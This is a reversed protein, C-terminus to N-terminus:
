CLYFILIAVFVLILSAIFVFAYSKSPFFKFYHDHAGTSSPIISKSEVPLSHATSSSLFQKVEAEAKGFHDPYGQCVKLITRWTVDIDRRIWRQFVQILNNTTAEAYPLLDDVRVSLAIGILKFQAAYSDFLRVLDNLQPKMDLINEDSLQDNDQKIQTGSKGEDPGQADNFWTWYDNSLAPSEGCVTCDAVKHHDENVICYCSENNPCAFANIYNHKLHMADTSNDIATTLLKRVLPCHQTPGTFYVEVHTYHNILHLTHKSTITVKLSMADRFKYFEPASPPIETVCEKQNLLHVITLPFLGTPVPLIQKSQLM